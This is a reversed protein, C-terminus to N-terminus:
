IPLARSKLSSESDQQSRRCHSKDLLPAREHLFCPDTNLSCSLKLVQFNEPDFSYRARGLCKGVSQSLTTTHGHNQPATRALHLLLQTETDGSALGDAKTKAVDQLKAVLSMLAAKEDRLVQNDQILECNYNETDVLQQAVQGHVHM